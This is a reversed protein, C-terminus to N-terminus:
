PRFSEAPVSASYSVTTFQIEETKIGNFYQEIKFPTLRDDVARFDSFVYALVNWMPRGTIDTARGSQFELRTIRSTKDDIFYSTKRGEDDEAEISGTRGITALNRLTLNGASLLAPVSRVTQSEIFGLVVGDATSFFKGDFSSWSRHGDSGQRLEGAPQRIIRQVASRGRRLITVPYTAKAAGLSFLTVKGESLSELTELRAVAPGYAALVRQLVERPDSQLPGAGGSVSTCLALLLVFLRACRTISAVNISRSTM